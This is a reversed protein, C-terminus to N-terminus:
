VLLGGTTMLAMQFAASPINAPLVLSSFVLSHGWIFLLTLGAAMVAGAVLGRKSLLLHSYFLPALACGGLFALGVFVASTWHSSGLRAAYGAANFFLG